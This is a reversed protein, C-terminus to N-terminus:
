NCGHKHSRTVIEKENVTAEDGQFETYLGVERAGNLRGCRIATHGCRSVDKDTMAEELEDSVKTARGL